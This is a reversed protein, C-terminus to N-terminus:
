HPNESAIEPVLAVGAVILVVFPALRLLRYGVPLADWVTVDDADDPLSPIKAFHRQARVDAWAVIRRVVRQWRAPKPIRSFPDVQM